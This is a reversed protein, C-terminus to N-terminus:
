KNWNSALKKVINYHNKGYMELDGQSMSLSLQIWTHFGQFAMFALARRNNRSRWQYSSVQGCRAGTCPWCSSPFPSTSSALHASLRLPFILSGDKKRGSNSTKAQSATFLSDEGRCWSGLESPCLGWGSTQYSMLLAWLVYQIKISM